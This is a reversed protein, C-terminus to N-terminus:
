KGRNRRERRRIVSAVRVQQRRAMQDGGSFADSVPARPGVGEDGDELIQMQSALLVEDVVDIVGDVAGAPVFEGM